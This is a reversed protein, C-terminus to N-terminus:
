VQNLQENDERTWIGTTIAAEILKHSEEFSIQSIAHQQALEQSSPEQAYSNDALETNDIESTPLTNYGLRQDISLEVVSLLKEEFHQWQQTLLLVEDLNNELETDKDSVLNPKGIALPTSDIVWIRWGLFVTAMSQLCILIAMFFQLYSKDQKFSNKQTMQRYKECVEYAM